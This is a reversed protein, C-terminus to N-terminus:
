RMKQFRLVIEHWWYLFWDRLKYVLVLSGLLEVPHGPINCM